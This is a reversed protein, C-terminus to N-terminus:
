PLINDEHYFILKGVPGGLVELSSMLFNGYVYIVINDGKYFNYKYGDSSVQNPRSLVGIMQINSEMGKNLLAIYQSSNFVYVGNRLIFKNMVSYPESNFSITTTIDVINYIPTYTSVVSYPVTNEVTVGGVKLIQLPVYQISSTTDTFTTIPAVEEILPVSLPDPYSIHNSFLPNYEFIGLCGMYGAYLTYLSMKGFNGRITFRLIGYYFTYLQGDPGTGSYTSGPQLSELFVLSEKGRNLLTIPCNKPINFITYVGKYLGYKQSTYDDNFSVIKNDILNFNNQSCLGKMTSVTNYVYKSPGGRYANYVLKKFGGSYGDLTCMSLTDFYGKVHINIRGTYFFYSTGDPTMFPGTEVSSPTKVIEFVDEKGKNLFAVSKSPDITVVYSGISLGYKTENIGNFRLNLVVKLTNMYPLSYVTDVPVVDSFHFLGMGGLFGFSRSYVSMDFPFPKYVTMKVRGYYFAHVGEQLTGPALTVDTVTDMIKKDEDGIFSVYSEYGKNLLTSAYTKPVDLYYTGYTFDYHFQNFELFVTNTIIDNISFKPGYSEYISLLSFQRAPVFSYSTLSEAITNALHIIISRNSYGWSYKMTIKPELDNFTFLEFVNIDRQVSLIMKAGPTGPELEYRIGKYPIGSYEVESLSFRTQLNSPDSLDFTYYQLPELLFNSTINKIMFYVRSPLVRNVVQFTFGSDLIIDPVVEPEPPAIEFVFNYETLTLSSVLVGLMNNLDMKMQQTINGYILENLYRTYLKYKFRFLLGRNLVYDLGLMQNYITKVRSNNYTIKKHNRIMMAQQQKTSLNNSPYSYISKLCAKDKTGCKAYPEVYRFLIPKQKIQTLVFAGLLRAEVTDKGPPVLVSIMDETKTLIMAQSGLWVETITSLHKGKVFFTDGAAGKSPSYDILRPTYTYRLTSGNMDNTLLYSDNLLSLIVRSTEQEPVSVILKTYNKLAINAPVTGFLISSVNMLGKGQFMVDTTSFAVETIEYPVLTFSLIAQNTDRTESGNIRLFCDETFPVIVQLTTESASVIETGIDGFFVSFVNFLHNGHITLIDGQRGQFVQGPNISFYFFMIPVGNVDNSLGNVLLPVNETIEPVVVSLTDADLTFNASIDGFLITTVEQLGKGTMYIIGTGHTRSINLIEFSVYTIELETRGEPSDIYVPYTGPSFIPATLIIETDTAEFPVPNIGFFISVVRRLSTGELTLIDGWMCMTQRFGYVTTPYLTYTLIGNTVSVSIPIEDTTINGTADITVPQNGFYVDLVSDLRNGDIRYTNPGTQRFQTIEPFTIPGMISWERLRYVYLFDNAISFTPAEIRYLLQQDLSYFCVHSGSTFCLTDSVFTQYQSTTNARIVDLATFSAGEVNTLFTENDVMGDYQIDLSFLNTENRVYLTQDIALIGQLMQYSTEFLTLFGSSTYLQIGVDTTVYIIENVYAMSHFTDTQINCFVTTKEQTLLHIKNEATAYYIDYGDMCFSYHSRMYPIIRLPLTQNINRLTLIYQPDIGIVIDDIVKYYVPTQITAQVEVPLVPTKSM